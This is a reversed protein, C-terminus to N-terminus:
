IEIILGTNYQDIKTIGIIRGGINYLWVMDDLGTTSSNTYYIKRIGIRRLLELQDLLGESTINFTISDNLWIGDQPLLEKMKGYGKYYEEKDRENYILTMIIDIQEKTLDKITEYNSFLKDKTEETIGQKGNLKAIREMAAVDKYYNELEDVMRRKLRIREKQLEEMEKLEKKTLKAM